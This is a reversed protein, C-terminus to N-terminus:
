LKNENLSILKISVYWSLIVPFLSSRLHYLKKKGVVYNIGVETKMIYFRGLFTSCIHM